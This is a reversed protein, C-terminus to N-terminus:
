SPWISSKFMAGFDVASKGKGNGTNVLILGRESM